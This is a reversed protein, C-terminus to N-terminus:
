NKKVFISSNKVNFNTKNQKFIFDIKGINIGGWGVQNIIVKKGDLNTELIPKELFSHTHGGIILDIHKSKQAIVLDSVKNSNYMLGLHSLCVILDCGKKNKLKDSIKNAEILPDLYKTQKYLEKPVLGNLEVGIGFVGIKISDKLFIKYPSFSNKLITKSFDYNACVFPFSAHKLQKKLGDLGNDFDHNGLTAADYKMQSMLKFELEGGYFNFYPTGQFIDGADFLLVNKEKKRIENIISSRQAMGGIGKFSGSSFPEIRSHMDNTHLITIRKVDEQAILEHNIMTLGVAGLGINKIFKRRNSM